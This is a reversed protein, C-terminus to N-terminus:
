RCKKRHECDSDPQSSPYLRDVVILRADDWETKYDLQRRIEDFTLLSNIFQTLSFIPHNRILCGPSEAM